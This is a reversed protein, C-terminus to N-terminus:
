RLPYEPDRKDFFSKVGEMVDKSEGCVIQTRNELHIMTDLSPSDMSLNIADKTMRLGLPSKKLMQEALEIGAEIEGKQRTLSPPRIPQQPSPIVGAQGLHKMDLNAMASNYQEQTINRDALHERLKDQALEYENLKKIERAIERQALAEERMKQMAFDHQSNLALKQNEWDMAMTQKQVNAKIEHEFMEQKAALERAQMTERIQLEQARQIRVERREADRRAAISQGALKGLRAISSVKGYEKRIAM